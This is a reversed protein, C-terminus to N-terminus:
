TLVHKMFDLVCSTGSTAGGAASLEHLWVSRQWSRPMMGTRTSRQWRAFLAHGSMTEPFQLKSHPFPVVSAHSLSRTCTEASARRLILRVEGVEYVLVRGDSDGVAIERGSHAWRLKNLAPNGDVVM